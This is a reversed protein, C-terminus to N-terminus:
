KIKRVSCLLVALIWGVHCAMLLNNSNTAYIYFIAWGSVRPTDIDEEIRTSLSM